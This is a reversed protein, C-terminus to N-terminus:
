GRSPMFQPYGIAGAYSGVISNTPYGEKYTWAILAALEDGFYEARRPNYTGICTRNAIWLKHWAINTFIPHIIVAISM